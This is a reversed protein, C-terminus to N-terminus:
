LYRHLLVRWGGSGEDEPLFDPLLRLFRCGTLRSYLALVPDRLFESQEPFVGTALYREIMKRVEPRPRVQMNGAFSPIPGDAIVARFGRQRGDDFAGDILTRAFSLGRAAPEVGLSYICVTDPDAPVPQTSYEKFNCPLGSLDDDSLKIASFGITGLLRGDDNMGLMRHGAAFRRLVTDPHAQIEPEFARRELEMIRDLDDPGLAELETM